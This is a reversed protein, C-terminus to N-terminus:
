LWLSSMGLTYESISRSLSGISLRAVFKVMFRRFRWHTPCSRPEVRDASYGRRDCEYVACWTRVAAKRVVTAGRPSGEGSTASLRRHLDDNSQYGPDAAADIVHVISEGAVIRGLPSQPPPRVKERAIWLDQGRWVAPNLCDGDFTWLTGLDAECLRIAREIMAEFVPTLNGPSANIVGLVEATATQQELAERTENILRANEIAIVAQAAFNQLLAIESESFPRVNRRASVVMGRLTDGKRLAVALLTRTGAIEVAAKSVPDDAAALDHVHVLPEGALLPLTAVGAGACVGHRLPAAFAEPMAHTAVARFVEGDYLFLSGQDAGCLTHAKELIADFVPALDGPSANIVGLIEATANQQELAERTENILRANEMAILAQAAFNELLAVHKDSYPQVRKRGTTIAGLLTGNKRLAVVLSSRAGAAATRVRAIDDSQYGPDAAVDIVHM